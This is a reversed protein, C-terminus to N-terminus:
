GAAAFGALALGAAIVLLFTAGAALTSGNLRGDLAHRHFQRVAAAAIRESPVADRAIVLHRTLWAREAADADPAGLMAWSGDGLPTEPLPRETTGAQLAIRLLAPAADIDAALESLREVLGGSMVLAGAWARERDIREFGAPVAQAAPMVLIAPAGSLVECAASTDPLLGPALVLLQDASRVSGLLDRAVSVTQVSLGAREALHHIAIAEASTGDGLLLAKDCGAARAFELQREALTKGAVTLLAGTGAFRPQGVLSILAARM